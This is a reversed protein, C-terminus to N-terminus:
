QSVRLNSLPLVIRTCVGGGERNSIHVNGGLRQITAQALFLGLGMGEGPLKTSIFPKGLQAMLEASLGPGRDSIDLTLEDATWQGHCEVSHAAADAANNLINTIAHTLTQDIVIHPAPLVGSWSQDLSVNLRSARWKEVTQTLYQDLAQRHGAEAPSQGASIAMSALIHKCRDIQSRLIHLQATADPLAACEAELERGLVAMTALPTGLEHAAGTTLTALAVLRENRLSQERARALAQERERLTANMKVAFFSILVSSLVFGFWMGLVHLSFDDGHLHPLPIYWVMLLSYCLLAAGAVAWTYRAPLSAAALTLPVLFLSVFPNTSGGTFYLLAALMVVDAFLQLFLELDSVDRAFLRLRLWTLINMAAFCAIIVLSAALPLPFGGLVATVIAALLGAMILYRYVVLRQLNLGSSTSESTPHVAHM